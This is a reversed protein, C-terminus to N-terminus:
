KPRCSGKRVLESDFKSVKAETPDGGKMFLLGFGLATLSEYCGQCDGEDEAIMDVVQDGISIGKNCFTVAEELMDMRNLSYACNMILVFLSTLDGSCKVLESRCNLGKIFNQLGLRYKEKTFAILGKQNYFHTSYSICDYVVPCSDIQAQKPDDMAIENTAFLEEIDIQVSDTDPRKIVNKIRRLCDAGYVNVIRSIYNLSVDNIVKDDEVKRNLRVMARIILYMLDEIHKYRKFAQKFVKKNFFSHSKLCNDRVFSMIILEMKPLENSEESILKKMSEVEQEFRDDQFM